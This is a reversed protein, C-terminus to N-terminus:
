GQSIQDNLIKAARLLAIDNNEATGEELDAESIEEDPTIGVGTLKAGSPLYYEATVLKVMDGTSPVQYYSTVAAKGFTQEGLITARGRDQLAAAFVEAVGATERDVIIVVPKDWRVSDTSNWNTAEKDRGMSSCIKGAELFSDAVKCAQSINGGPTGRLDIIVGKAKEDEMTELAKQFEDISSNSFEAVNIYGIEENVMNTFVVQMDESKRVLELDMEKEGSRTRLAVKTGDIGRLRGLATQVEMYQTDSGDISLILDGAIINADYAPTDAFVRTVRMYDTASDRELMMGLAIFSGESNEDFNQYDEESYFASYRDNLSDVVGRLSGQVLTNDDVEHIYNESIINRIDELEFYKMLANYEEGKLYIEGSEISKKTFYFTVLSAVVIAAVLVVLLIYYMKKKSIM